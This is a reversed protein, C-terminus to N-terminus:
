TQDHNEYHLLWRKRTLGGAYGGLQGNHNIVRHCPIIIAHQNSGIAQAVARCATPKGIAQAIELYSLTEGYPITTLAHWVQKQFSTGFTHIPTQFTKLSDNFYANLEQQISHTISNSGVHIISGTTRTLREIEENLNRRDAFELLYLIKQDGIATMRGLKTDFTSKTIFGEM